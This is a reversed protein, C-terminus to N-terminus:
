KEFLSENQCPSSLSSKSITWLTQLYRRKKAQTCVPPTSPFIVTYKLLTRRLAKMQILGSNVQQFIKKDILYKAEHQCLHLHMISGGQSLDFFVRAENFEYFYTILICACTVAIM